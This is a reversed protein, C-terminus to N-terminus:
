MTQVNERYSTLIKYFSTYTVYIYPFIVLGMIIFPYILWRVLTNFLAGIGNGPDDVGKLWKKENIKLRKKPVKDELAQVKLDKGASKALQQLEEPPLSPDPAAAAIAPGTAAAAAAAEIPAAGTAAAAIAPASGTAAIAAEIPAAGGLQLYYTNLHNLDITFPDALFKDIDKECENNLVITTFKDFINAIILLDM